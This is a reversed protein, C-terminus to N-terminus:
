HKRGKKRKGGDVVAGSRGILRALDGKKYLYRIEEITGVTQGGVLLIPFDEASTLRTLLPTLVAEDSREDVDIFTPSPLLNMSELMTKFERSVPQRSKSFLLVPYHAWTNSVLSEVEEKARPSRVDFDLVVEPDIPQSPDVYSPIVNQPLNGIFGCIAALEQAPDLMVKPRSEGTSTWTPRKHRLAALRSAQYALQSLRQSALRSQNHDADALSIPALSPHAVFIIYGSLLVLAILAIYTSRQWIHKAKRTTLSIHHNFVALAPTLPPNSEDLAIGMDVNRASYTRRHAM